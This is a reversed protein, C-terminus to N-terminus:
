ASRKCRNSKSLKKSSTEVNSLKEHSESSAHKYKNSTDKHSDKTAHFFIPKNTNSYKAADSMESVRNM